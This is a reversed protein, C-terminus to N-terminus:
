SLVERIAAYLRARLLVAGSGFSEAGTGEGLSRKALRSSSTMFGDEDGRGAVGNVEETVTLCFVFVAADPMLLM